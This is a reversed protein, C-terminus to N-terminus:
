DYISVTKSAVHGATIHVHTAQQTPQNIAARFDIREKHQRTAVPLLLDVWLDLTDACHSM